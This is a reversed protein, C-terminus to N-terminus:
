IHLTSFTNHGRVSCIKIMITTTKITTLIKSMMIMVMVVEMLFRIKVSTNQDDPSAQKNASKKRQLCIDISGFNAFFNDKGRGLFRYSRYVPTLHWDLSYNM